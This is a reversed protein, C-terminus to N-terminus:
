RSQAASRSPTSRVAIVGLVEELTYHETGSWRRTLCPKVCYTKKM